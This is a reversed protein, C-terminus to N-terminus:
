NKIYEEIKKAAVVVAEAIEPISGSYGTKSGEVIRVAFDACKIKLEKEPTPM